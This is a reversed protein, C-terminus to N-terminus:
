FSVIDDEGIYVTVNQNFDLMGVMTAVDASMKAVPIGYVPDFEGEMVIPHRLEMFDDKSCAAM